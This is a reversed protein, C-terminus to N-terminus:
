HHGGGGFIGFTMKLLMVVFAILAIVKIAIEAYGTFSV